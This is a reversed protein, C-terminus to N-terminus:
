WDTAAKVLYHVAVLMPAFVFTSIVWLEFLSDELRIHWFRRTCVLLAFVGFGYLLITRAWLWANKRSRVAWERQM